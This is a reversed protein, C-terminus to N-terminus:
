GECVEEGRYGVIKSKSLLADLHSQMSHLTYHMTIPLYQLISFEITTDITSSATIVFLDTTTMNPIQSAKCSNMNERIIVVNM